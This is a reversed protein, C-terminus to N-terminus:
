EDVERDTGSRLSAASLSEVVGREGDVLVTEGNRSALDAPKLGVVCPTLMERAVQAAHSSLGGQETIIASAQDMLPVYNVDTYKAALVAGEPFDEEFPDEVWVVTGTATGPSAAVGNVEPTADPDLGLDAPTPDSKADGPEFDEHVMQFAEGMHHDYNARRIAGRGWAESKVDVWGNDRELLDRLERLDISSRRELRAQGRFLRGENDNLAATLVREVYTVPLWRSGRGSHNDQWRVLDTGWASNVRLVRKRLDTEHEWEEVAHTLAQVLLQHDLERLQEVTLNGSRYRDLVDDPTMTM